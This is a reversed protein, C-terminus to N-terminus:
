FFLGTFLTRLPSGSLVQRCFMFESDKLVVVICAGMLIITKPERFPGVATKIKQNDMSFVMLTITTISFVQVAEKDKSLDEEAQELFFIALNPVKLQFNM